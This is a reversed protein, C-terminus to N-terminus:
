QFRGRQNRKRYCKRKPDAQGRRSGRLKEAIAARRPRRWSAIAAKEAAASAPEATPAIYERGVLLRRGPLLLLPDDM